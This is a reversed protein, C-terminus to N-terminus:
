NLDIWVADEIDREEPAPQKPREVSRTQDPRTRPRRDSQVARWLSRAARFVFYAIIVTLLFRWIM